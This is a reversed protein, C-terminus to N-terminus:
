PLVEALNETAFVAFSLGNLTTMEKMEKFLM